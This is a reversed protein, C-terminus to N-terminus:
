RRRGGRVLDLPHVADPRGRPRVTKDNDYQGADTDAVKQTGNSGDLAIGYIGPKSVGEATLM